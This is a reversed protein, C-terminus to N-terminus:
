RIEMMVMETELWGDRDLVGCWFHRNGELGIVKAVLSKKPIVGFMALIDAIKKSSFRLSYQIIVKGNVKNKREIISDAITEEDDEDLEFWDMILDKKCEMNEKYISREKFIKM